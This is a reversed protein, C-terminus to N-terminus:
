RLSRAHRAPLRTLPLMGLGRACERCESATCLLIAAPSAVVDLLAHHSVTRAQLLEPSLPLDEFSAASAYMSNGAVHATLEGAGNDDALGPDPM